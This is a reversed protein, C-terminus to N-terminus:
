IDWEECAAYFSEGNAVLKKVEDDLKMEKMTHYKDLFSDMEDEPLIDWYQTVEDIYKCIEDWVEKFTCKMKDHVEAYAMIFELDKKTM